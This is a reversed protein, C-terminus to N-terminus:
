RRSKRIIEPGATRIAPFYDIDWFHEPTSPRRESRSTSPRNTRQPTRLEPASSAAKGKHTCLTTPDRTPLALGPTSYFDRCPECDGIAELIRQLRVSREPLKGQQQQQQQKPLPETQQAQKEKSADICDLMDRWSDGTDVPSDRPSSCEDDSAPCLEVVNDEPMCMDSSDLHTEQSSCKVGAAACTAEPNFLRRGENRQVGLRRSGKFHLPPPSSLLNHRAGLSEKRAKKTPTTTDAAPMAIAAARQNGAWTGKRIPSVLIGGHSRKGRNGSGPPRMKKELEDFDEFTYVKAPAQRSSLSTLASARKDAPQPSIDRHEQLQKYRALLQDYEQCKSSYKNSMDDLEKCKEAYWRIEVM